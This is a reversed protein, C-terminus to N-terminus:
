QGWNIAAIQGTTTSGGDIHKTGGTSRGILQIRVKGDAGRDGSAVVHWRAGGFVTLVGGAGAWGVAGFKQDPLVADGFFSVPAGDVVFAADLYGTVPENGWRACPTFQILDGEDADMELVPGILAWSTSTLNIHGGGITAVVPTITLPPM